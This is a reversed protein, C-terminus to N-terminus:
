AHGTKLPRANAIDILLDWPCDKSTHPIFRSNGHKKECLCNYTAHELTPLGDANNTKEGHPFSFNHVTYPM